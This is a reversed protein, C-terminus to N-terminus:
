SLVDKLEPDRLLEEVEDESLEELRALLETARTRQSSRSIVPTSVPTEQRLQTVAEALAAITPAEFIVRVPLELQFASAIRSIVQTALM